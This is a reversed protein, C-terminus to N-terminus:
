TDHCDAVWSKDLGTICSIYVTSYELTISCNSCFLTRDSFSFMDCTKKKKVNMTGHM